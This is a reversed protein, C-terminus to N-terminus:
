AKGNAKRKRLVPTGGTFDAWRKIIVDCFIPDLEVLAARRNQKEAAILTSGSGGFPDFVLGGRDASNLIHSEILAVPKMTPHEVSVSPRQFEQVTSKKRSAYWQHAAGPKWGYLIPEHQWQYDQRGMVIHSKVWILCSSLYLGSDEFAARVTRGMQDAHALYISAGPKMVRQISQLAAVLFSRFDDVSMKDNAIDFDKWKGTKTNSKYDVNYPPDTWVMDVEAGGIFVELAKTDLCDGCLLSHQGLEWIDGLKTTAKVPPAPAEDEGTTGALEVYDNVEGDLFGTLALDPLQDQLDKFEKALMDGDWGSGLPIKNDAIRYARKQAESLGHLVICPAEELGMSQAAMLRGHGAIIEDDEDVLIPNTFGFEKISAVIQEVQRKPHKRANHAYPSLAELKKVSIELNREM